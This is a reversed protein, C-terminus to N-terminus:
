RAEHKTVEKISDIAANSIATFDEKYYEATYVENLKETINKRHNKKLYDTLANIYLASRTIGMNKATEEAQLYVSDPLSIATKM